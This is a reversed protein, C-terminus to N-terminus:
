KRHDYTCSHGGLSTEELLLVLPRDYHSDIVVPDVHDVGSGQLKFCPLELIENVPVGVGGGKAELHHSADLLLWGTCVSELGGLSLENIVEHVIPRLFPM